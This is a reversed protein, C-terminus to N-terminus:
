SLNYAQKVFEELSDQDLLGNMCIDKGLNYLNEIVEPDINSSLLNPLPINKVFRDSLDWQGGSVHISKSSILKSFFKSNLITLYAYNTKEYMDERKPIWAFGQVVVYDGSKDLAFYGADGYYTSVLKPKKEVQWERQRTINWWKQINIGARKQLRQKNTLLYKGAYVPLKKILEEEDEIELNDGYPFFSYSLSRLYGLKISDNIVAPRFFQRETEPLNNWQDHDLLFVKNNGTRIGQRVNFLNGVTTMTNLSNLLIWADYPRPSWLEKEHKPYQYISFGKDVIPLAQPTSYYRFKRLTRLGATSSSARHDAWFALAERNTDIKSGVYFAPEIIAGAFLQHNGLRAIISTHLVDELFMRIKKSSESDLMSAPIIAGIIGTQSLSNVACYLFAQSLNPRSGALSGLIERVRQKQSGHMKDLSLFPPNMIILDINKPWQNSNALSDKCEITINVNFNVSRLEWGLEYKAMACAIESIDWGIINVNGKYGNINLQRLAERLFEGSGCAPDFITLIKNDLDVLSLVEEVLTRALASPTFHLGVEKSSSHSIRVPDPIFGDLTLQNPNVLIADYHAEQFLQGTAHRLVLNINPTLGEIPRGNIYETQLTNWDEERIQKAVEEAKESLYWKTIDIENRSKSEEACSIFYLFANLGDEGDFENGLVARLRRFIKISHAIISYDSNSSSEELYQHFKLLNSVVSNIKYRELTNVQQDWRHVEVIDKIISVYHNVNSSWAFNRAQLDRLTDDGAIDLCLNGRNGNLLIFRKENIDGFLPVPFLGLKMRWTDIECLSLNNEM